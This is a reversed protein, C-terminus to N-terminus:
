SLVIATHPDIQPIVTGIVVGDVEADSPVGLLLGGATQPDFLLPLKPHSSFRDM